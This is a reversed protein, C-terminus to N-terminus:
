IAITRFARELKSWLMTGTCFGSGSRGDKDMEAAEHDPDHCHPCCHSRHDSACLQEMTRVNEIIKECEQEALGV